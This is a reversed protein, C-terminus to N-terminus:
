ENTKCMLFAEFIDYSLRNRRPILIQGATSFLREVPASSPIITNFKLFLHKVHPFRTVSTTDKQKDSLYSLVEMSIASDTTTEIQDQDKLFKFFKDDEM